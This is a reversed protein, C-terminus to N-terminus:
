AEFAGMDKLLRLAEADVREPEADRGFRELLEARAQKLATFVPAERLNTLVEEQVDEPLRDTLYGFFVTATSLVMIRDESETWYLQLFMAENYDELFEEDEEEPADWYELVFFPLDPATHFADWVARYTDDGPGALELTAVAKAHAAFIDGSDVGLSEELVEAFKEQRLLAGLRIGRGWFPDWEDRDLMEKSVALADEPKDDLLFSWGLNRLAEFLLDEMADAEDESAQAMRKRTEEVCRRLLAAQQEPEEAVDALVFLAEPNEPDLVLIKKATGEAATVDQSEYLENLLDELSAQAHFAM